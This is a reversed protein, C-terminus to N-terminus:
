SGYLRRAGKAIEAGAKTLYIRLDDTVAVHGAGKLGAIERIESTSFEALPVARARSIAGEQHLRIEVTVGTSPRKGIISRIGPDVWDQKIV